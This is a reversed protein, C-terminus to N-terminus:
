FRSRVDPAMRKKRVDPERVRVPLDAEVPGFSSVADASDIAEIKYFLGRVQTRGQPLAVTDVHSYQSPEGNAPILESVRTYPGDPTFARTVYFGRVGEELSTKWSVAVNRGGVHEATLDYVEAALGADFSTCKSNASYYLSQQDWFTGGDTMPFYLKLAFVVGQANGQSVGIDAVDVTVTEGDIPNVGPYETFQDATPQDCAGDGLDDIYYYLNYAVATPDCGDGTSTTAAGWELTVSTDSPNGDDVQYPVPIPSAGGITDLTGQSTFDAPGVLNTANPNGLCTVPQADGDRCNQLKWDETEGINVPRCVWAYYGAHQPTGSDTEAVFLAHYVTGEVGDYNFINDNAGRFAPGGKPPGRFWADCWPDCAATGGDVVRCTAECTAQDWVTGNDQFHIVRPCDVGGVQFDGSCDEGFDQFLTDDLTADFGQQALAPTACLALLAVSGLVYGIMKRVNMVM